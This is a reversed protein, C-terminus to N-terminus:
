TYPHEPNDAFCEKPTSEKGKRYVLAPPAHKKIM